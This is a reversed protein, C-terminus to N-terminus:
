PVSAAAEVRTFLQAGRMLHEGAHAGLREGGASLALQRRGARADRLWLVLDVRLESRLLGLYSAEGRSPNDFASIPACSNMLRCM